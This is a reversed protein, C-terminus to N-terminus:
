DPSGSQQVGQATAAPAWHHGSSILNFGSLVLRPHEGRTDADELEVHITRREGPMLALYNDDYLAPVILDGTKARVAKVRVLLAPSKSTNRLDATLLWESGKRKTHSKM